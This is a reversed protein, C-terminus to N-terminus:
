VKFHAFWEAARPQLPHDPSPKGTVEELLVTAWARNPRLGRYLYSYVKGARVLHKPYGQCARVQATLDPEHPHTTLARTRRLSPRLRALHRVLHRVRARHRVLHNILRKRRM